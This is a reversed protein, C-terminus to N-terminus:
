IVMSSKLNYLIIMRTDRLLVKRSRAIDISRQAQGMEKRINNTNSITTTKQELKEKLSPLNSKTITAGLSLNKSTDTM